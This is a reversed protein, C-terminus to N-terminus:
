DIDEFNEYGDIIDLYVGDFEASLIRKLYSDKGTAIIDQWKITWYKVPYNGEWRPNEGVIWDPPNKDYEEKWYFRYDEAEGISLYAIVLRRAGNNKVQLKEVDEKTLMEDKDFFADIVLVDYDTKSLEEVFNIKSSYREPNILYLWNKADDLSLIDDDNTDLMSNSFFNLQMDPAIFSVYNNKKAFEISKEMKDQADCYDITLVNIGYQAGVNLLGVLEQKQADNKAKNYRENGYSIGEVGIGDITTLFDDAPVGDANGSLTFLQTGNQPILIFDSDTKRAIDGIKIVWERMAQRYDINDENASSINTCGLVSFAVLLM